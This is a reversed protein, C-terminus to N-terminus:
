KSHATPPIYWKFQPTKNYPAFAHGLDDIEVVKAFYLQLRIFISLRGVVPRAMAAALAVPRALLIFFLAAPLIQLAAAEVFPIRIVTVPRSSNL